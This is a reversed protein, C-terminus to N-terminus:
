FPLGKKFKIDSFREDVCKECVHATWQESDKNSWYGWNAELKMFEFVDYVEGNDERLDNDVVDTHVKCSKGCCDCIIDTLGTFTKNKIGNIEM